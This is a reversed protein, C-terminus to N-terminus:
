RLLSTLNIDVLLNALKILPLKIESKFINPNVILIEPPRVVEVLDLGRLFVVLLICDRDIGRLELERSPENVEEAIIAFMGIKRRVVPERAKKVQNNEEENPSNSSQGEFPVVM